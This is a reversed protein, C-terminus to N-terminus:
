WEPYYVDDLCPVIFVHCRVPSGGGALSLQKQKNLIARDIYGVCGAAIRDTLTFGRKRFFTLEM